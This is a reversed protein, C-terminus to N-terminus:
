FRKWHSLGLSFLATKLSRFSPSITSGPRCRAWQDTFLRWLDAVFLAKRASRQIRYTPRALSWLLDSSYNIIPTDIIVMYFSYNWKSLVPKTSGYCLFYGLVLCPIFSSIEEEVNIKSRYKSKMLALTFFEASEGIMLSVMDVAAAPLVIEEAIASPERCKTIRPALKYALLANSPM